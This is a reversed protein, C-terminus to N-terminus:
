LWALGYSLYTDTSGLSSTSHLYYGVLLNVYDCRAYPVLLFLFESRFNRNMSVRDVNWLVGKIPYKAVEVGKSEQM